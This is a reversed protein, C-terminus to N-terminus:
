ALYVVAGDLRSTMDTEIQIDAGPAVIVTGSIVSSNRLRVTPIGAAVYIAPAHISTSTVGDLSLTAEGVLEAFGSESLIKTDSLSASSGTGEVRVICGGESELQGSQMSITGGESAELAACGTGSAYASADNLM